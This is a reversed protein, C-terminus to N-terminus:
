IADTMTPYMKTAVTPEEMEELYLELVELEASRSGDASKGISSVRVKGSIVVEHGVEHGEVVTADMDTLYIKPYHIEEESASGVLTDSRSRNGMKPM